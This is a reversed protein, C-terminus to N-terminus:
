YQILTWVINKLFLSFVPRNNQQSVEIYSWIILEITRLVEESVFQQGAVWSISLMKHFGFITNKTTQLHNIDQALSIWDVFGTM